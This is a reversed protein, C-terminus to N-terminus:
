KLQDSLELLSAKLEKMAAAPEMDGLLAREIYQDIMEAAQPSKDFGPLPVRAVKQAKELIDAYPVDQKFVDDRFVSLRTPGNGNLAMALASEHSSLYRIFEWSLEKNAANKPIVM